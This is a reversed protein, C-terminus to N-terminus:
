NALVLERHLCGTVRLPGAIRRYEESRMLVVEHHNGAQFFINEDELLCPDVYMPMHYLSGFPPMAGMECDPFLRTLQFEDELRIGARGTARHLRNSDFYEGSPLVVMFDAGLTDRLVVVKAMKHNAVHVNHAVQNATYAENHPLVAYSSRTQDLLEQLRRNIAM